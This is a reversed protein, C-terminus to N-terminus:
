EMRNFMHLLELQIQSLGEDSGQDRWLEMSLRSVEAVLSRTRESAFDAEAEFM